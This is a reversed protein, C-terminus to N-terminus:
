EPRHLLTTDDPRHLATVNQCSPCVWVASDTHPDRKAGRHFCWGKGPLRSDYHRNPRSDSTSTSRTKM